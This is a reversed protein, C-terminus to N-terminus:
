GTPGPRRRSFGFPDINWPRGEAARRYGLDFLVQMCATDFPDAVHLGIGLRRVAAQTTLLSGHVHTKLVTACAREAISLTSSEVVASGPMPAANRVIRLEAGAGLPLDLPAESALLADPLALLQITTGGGARREPFSDPGAAVTIPAPPVVAPISASAM